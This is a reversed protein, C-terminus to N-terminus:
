DLAAMIEMRVGGGPLNVELLNLRVRERDAQLLNDFASEVVPFLGSEPVFATVATLNVTTAGAQALLAKINDAVIEAQREPTTGREGTHPVTAFLRSSFVLNAMRGGMSMPDQHALGPIVLVIRRQGRVAFAQFQVMVGDPLPAPVYKHPPRDDPESFFDPWVKNLVPHGDMDRLFVTVHGVNDFSAGAHEVATRLNTLAQRLQGEYGDPLRGTAPDVGQIAPFYLVGDINVGNPLPTLGSEPYLEVVPSASMEVMMELHPMIFAQMVHFSPRAAADPFAKDFHRRVADAGALDRLFITLHTIDSTSRGALEALSKINQFALESQEEFGDPPKGTSPDTGHVRSTFVHSGLRVTPDRAPVGPIDIRERREGLIGIVQLAVQVGDPLPTVLAKAGPRDNSDPYLRDWPGYVPERDEVRTVFFTVRAVSDLSGGSKQMLSEMNRLAQEMQGELTEAPRGTQPDVGTLRPAYVVDGIRVGWPIPDRTSPSYLEVVPGVNAM